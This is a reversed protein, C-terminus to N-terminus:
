FVISSLDRADVRFLVLLVPVLWRAFPFVSRAHEVVLTWRRLFASCQRFCSGSLHAFHRRINVRM